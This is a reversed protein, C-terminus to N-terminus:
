LRGAFLERIADWLAEIERQEPGSTSSALDDLLEEVTLDAPAPTSADIDRCEVFYTLLLGALRVADKDTLHAM